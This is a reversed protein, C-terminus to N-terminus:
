IACTTGGKRLTCTDRRSCCDCGRVRAAQPRRAVGIVATVTKCPNMLLSDSVTVGIRRQTNLAACIGPQLALPLDGYGPSFRDTLFCDPFRAAIEQEAADCAAEVYASGCADLMVAHALDRAQRTRLLADFEAGLTCALLIVQHSEALMLAANRGTLTLNAEPLFIGAERQEPTFTRYVWRPTIRRQLEQALTEM